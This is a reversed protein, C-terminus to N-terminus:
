DNLFVDIANSAVFGFANAAPDFAASQVSISTGLLLPDIPIPSDVRALGNADTLAASLSALDNYLRNGPAGLFGLDIDVAAGVLLLSIGNPLGGRLDWRVTSGLNCHGRAHLKPRTFLSTTGSQGRHVLRSAIPLLADQWEIIQGTGPVNTEARGDGDIDGLRQADLGLASMNISPLMLALTAGSLIEKFAGGQLRFDDHGDGDVDGLARFGPDWPYVTLVAGTGGARVETTPPVTDLHRTYDTTGDDDVDGLFAPSGDLVTTPAFTPGRLVEASWTSTATDLTAVAFDAYGDGDFDVLPEGWQPVAVTRDWVVAGTRGSRVEITHDTGNPYGFVLDDCGDADLDFGGAVTPQVPFAWGHLTSGDQGSVIEVGTATTRALDGRGDADVDGAPALALATASTLFPIASGTAGSHVSLSGADDLVYDDVGDGDIDGAPGVPLLLDPGLVVGQADLAALLLLSSLVHRSLRVTPLIRKM